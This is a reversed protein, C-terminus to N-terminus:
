KSAARRTTFFYAIHVCEWRIEIEELRTKDKGGIQEGVSARGFDLSKELGLVSGRKKCIKGAM